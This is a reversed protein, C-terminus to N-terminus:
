GVFDALERSFREREEVFTVHGSEAFRVLKCGPIRPAMYESWRIDCVSDNDGHFIATPVRVGDLGGRLDENLIAEFSRVGAFVPTQLSIQIFWDRTSELGQKHFNNQLLAARAQPKNTRELDLLPGAQEPPLGYPLGPEQTFRPTAPSAMVLRSVGYGFDRVYKLCIGGGMSWGVLTVDQLGLSRIVHELDRCFEDYDYRSLPKDSRGHGRMDLTVCRYRDGLDMVQYDFVDGNMSWGPVFVIPKGQGRDQYFLSVGDAVQVYPM